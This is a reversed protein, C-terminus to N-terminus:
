KSIWLRNITCCKIWGHDRVFKNDPYGYLLINGNCWLGINGNGWEKCKAGTLINDITRFFYQIDTPYRHIDTPNDVRWKELAQAWLQKSARRSSRARQESPWGRGGSRPAPWPPKRILRWPPDGLWQLKLVITPWEHSPHNQPTGRHIPFGWIIIIRIYCLHLQFFMPYIVAYWPIDLHSHMPIHHSSLQFVHNKSKVTIDSSTLTVPIMGMASRM